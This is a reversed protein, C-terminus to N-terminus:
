MLKILNSFLKQEEKIAAENGVVAICDKSIVAEVLNKLNRIDQATATLIEQREKQLAEQTIGCFYNKIAQWGEEEPTLNQELDSITGIIYKLMERDSVEFKELYSVTEEYAKLTEKLNPDRYSVLILNGDKTLYVMAGYAGGLVRIRNWLYDKSLVTKLVLMKGSYDFGLKKFNYGCAVYQVNSTTLIGENKIDEKFPHKISISEETILKDLLIHVKDKLLSCEEEDSTLTITLSNKVFLKKSVKKLKELLVDIETEFNNELGLLFEYFEYNMTKEVYASSASLYSSLRIAATMHGSEMIMMQNQYILMNIIERIRDKDEFLSNTVVETLLEIGTDLKGIMVKCKSNLFAKYNNTSAHNSFVQNEFNIGGTSLMIKKNLEMYDYNKTDVKGLLHSLLAAYPIEEEELNETSFMCNIYAIKNTPMKHYLLKVGNLSLEEISLNKCNKDIDELSLMPITALAEKTDLTNQREKLKRNANILENIETKSLMSKRLALESNLKDKKEINLGKKPALIVLSTHNNKLFYKDILNEFYGSKINKKINELYKEFKLSKLPDDGYMWTSMAKFYYLLGKPMGSMQSERLMFEERNVCAYVIEEDIGNRVLNELTTFVINKFEEKRKEDTNSLIISFTPQLTSDDFYGNVDMALGADLLARKLPAAESEMLINNLIGLSISLESDTSEGTVFNLAMYARDMEDCDESVAYEHLEEKPQGFGDDLKISFDLDQKSLNSLYDKDIFELYKEIEGDGYVFIYSNSPQYYKKHFSEFMEQTLQPIVDPDGGSVYKYCNNFLSHNIKQMLIGQPSSFAGKMENYVVGNYTLEDEASDIEYHWGEQMLIEKVDYINPYFVANMYVDMLNLFDKENKSAFPYLTKDPFTMANLFTNLSGKLLEVFPEKAPFKKSGCLVSHELVHAVGTDDSPLTKFGIAFVKNPDDNKLHLLKAGSNVHVFISALSNAEEIFEQRELLFGNKIEGVKYDM